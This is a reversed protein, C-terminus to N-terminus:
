VGLREAAPTQSNRQGDGFYRPRGHAWHRGFQESIARVFEEDGFPRGACTCRSLLESFDSLEPQGTKEARESAMTLRNMPDHLYEQVAM